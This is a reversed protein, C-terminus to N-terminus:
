LLKFFYFHQIIIWFYIAYAWDCSPGIMWGMFNFFILIVQRSFLGLAVRCISPASARFIAAPDFVWRTYM